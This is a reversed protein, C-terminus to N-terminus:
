SADGGSHPAGCNPCVRRSNVNKGGVYRSKTRNAGSGSSFERVPDAITGCEDCKRPNDSGEFSESGEEDEDDQLEKIVKLNTLAEDVDGETREETM